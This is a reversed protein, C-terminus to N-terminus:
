LEVAKTNTHTTLNSFMNFTPKKKLSVLHSNISCLKVIIKGLVVFLM